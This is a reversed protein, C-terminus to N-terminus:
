LRRLIESVGGEQVSLTIEGAADRVEQPGQAMAIARGGKELAWRFMGVDNRGDGMVLVRDPPIGLWRRVLELATGKDVGQPAIDLWATWGIAYSVQNLGIKDVLRLFDGEAHEPSVVVVRCVPHKALEEFPVRHAALLNWDELYDTYYRDGAPLEVLYKADPLHERLLTLVETADFTETHVREYHVQGADRRQLIVAGNSCVVYEPDLELVRLIGRTGEWSRGTALMVENGAARADAVAEVIGPSLTEDELLVTGDIDLVILLPLTTLEPDASDQAVHEIIEAAEDRDVVEVEGTDPIRDRVNAGGADPAETM